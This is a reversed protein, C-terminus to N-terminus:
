GHVPYLERERQFSAVDATLGLEEGLATCRRRWDNTEQKTRLILTDRKRKTLNSWQRSRYGEHACLNLM